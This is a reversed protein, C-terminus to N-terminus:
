ARSARARPYCASATRGRVLVEDIPRGGSLMDGLHYRPKLGFLIEINALGLDADIVLVRKGSKAVHIALNATVNSKGVGGKGSTVAFGQARAADLAGGGGPETPQGGSGRM